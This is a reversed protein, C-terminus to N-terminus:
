RESFPQFGDKKKSRPISIEKLLQFLEPSGYWVEFSCYSITESTSSKANLEQIGIVNEAV